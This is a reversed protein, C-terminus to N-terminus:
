VPVVQHPHNSGGMDDERVYSEETAASPDHDRLNDFKGFTSPFISSSVTPVIVVHLM